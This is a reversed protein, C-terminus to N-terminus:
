VGLVPKTIVLERVPRVSKGGAVTYTLEVERLQFAAFLDRIEPVDNISLIFQGKIAKLRTAMEEFETRGFMAKGYDDKCGWYPPDLYFLTGPRDYRNIFDQWRLNEITVGALREHILPAPLWRGADAGGCRM